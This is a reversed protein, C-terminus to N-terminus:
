RLIANKPYFYTTNKICGTLDGLNATDYYPVATYSSKEGIVGLLM